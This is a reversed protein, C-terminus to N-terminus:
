LAPYVVYKKKFTRCGFFPQHTDDRFSIVLSKFGLSGGGMLLKCFKGDFYFFVQGFYKKKFKFKKFKKNKKFTGLEDLNKIFFLQDEM